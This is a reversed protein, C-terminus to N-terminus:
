IIAIYTLIHVTDIANRGKHFDGLAATEGRGRAPKSARGGGNRARNSLAFRPEAHAKEAAGRARDAEGLGALAKQPAPTAHEGIELLDFAGRRALPGRRAAFQADGRRDQESAQVDQRDHGLKEAAEAVH